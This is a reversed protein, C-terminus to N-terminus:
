DPRQTSVSTEFVGDFDGVVDLWLALTEAEALPESVLEEEGADDGVADSVRVVDPDLDRDVVYVGDCDAVHAADVVNDLVCDSDVGEVEVCGAKCTDDQDGVRVLEVDIECLRVRVEECIGRSGVSLRTGSPFAATNAVVISNDSEMGVCTNSAVILEHGLRARPVLATRDIKHLMGGVMPVEIATTAGVDADSARQVGGGM